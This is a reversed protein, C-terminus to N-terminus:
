YYKSLIKKPKLRIEENYEDFGVDAIVEINMNTLDELKGELAGLDGSDEIIKVVDETKMEILEEALKNFFTVSIDGTDDELRAPIMLLYSPEDIEEGCFDCVYEDDTIELNNNCHPCRTILNKNSSAETIRGNIRVNTDDDELLEIDKAQYIVEQLEEFTPLEEIESESPQLISTNRSTSLELRNDNDNFGIRPDEIKIAEGVELAMNANDGWLVVPMSGTMDAIEMNRVIGKGGDTREFEHPDNVEIIRAVVRIKSDDEDIEDITKTTYIMEELTEFAPLMLARPDDESLKIVRSSGGVNLDVAYMGLRTRGNEILYADGPTFNEEAKDGWLSIQIVGTGDSLDISRVTGTTGDDREFENLDSISIIRGIVDVEEGDDDMELVQEIYKPGMQSRIEEFMVEQEESIPPNISIQSNWNTNLSYGTSTYDDFRANGGIIKVVDGKKIDLDTDDGWITVRIGQTDDTVEFSRLRGESGDSRTFTKIDQIKTVVGIINVNNQEKVDIIKTIADEFKPVDFDGKVIKGDWHSLSMEGNRERAQAALIKVADGDHLELSDILDVNNNWLTYSISGSADQLELSGVKGEKGNKEYTRVNPIRVIRAIINVKTDPVIDAIPTIDEKYEPCNPCEEESIHKVTSRPKMVAELGSYGDKVDVNNIQIIDGENFNKLLKINETWMVVKISGTSDAIEINCVKGDNGKKRKFVKPTGIQMVRGSININNDGDELQAIKERAYEEQSSLLTNDETLYENVVQQANDVDDMFGIDKNKERFYELRELFAEESIKDKIKNYQELIEEEM